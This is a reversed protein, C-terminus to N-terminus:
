RQGAAELVPAFRDPVEAWDDPSRVDRLLQARPLGVGTM